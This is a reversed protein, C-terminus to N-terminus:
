APTAWGPSSCRARALTSSTCAPPRAPAPSQPNPTFIFPPSGPTSPHLPLPAPRPVPAAPPMCPLGLSGGSTRSCSEESACRHGLPTRGTRIQQQQRTCSAGPLTAHRGPFCCDVLTAARAYRLRAFPLCATAPTCPMYRLWASPPQGTHRTCSSVHPRWAAFPRAIRANSVQLHAVMVPRSPTSAPPSTTAPLSSSAPTAESCAGCSQVLFLTNALSVYRLDLLTKLSRSVRCTRWMLLPCCIAGFSAEQATQRIICAPDRKCLTDLIKLRPSESPTHGDPSEAFHCRSVTRRERGVAWWCPLRAVSTQVAQSLGGHM